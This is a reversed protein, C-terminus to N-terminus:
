NLVWVAYNLLAAFSVWCLCPVLLIAAKKSPQWFLFITSAIAVWLFIIEVLALAPMRLGFFIIPWATNLALQIAFLSLSAKSNETKIGKKWLIFLAIGMLMYLAIWAPGFLWSPPTFWPKQLFAYWNPISEITFVSGIIGAAQCLLISFVLKAIDATKM